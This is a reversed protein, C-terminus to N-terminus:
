QRRTSRTYPVPSAKKNTNVPLGMGLGVGTAGIVAATLRNAGCGEIGCHPAQDAFLRSIPVHNGNRVLPSAVVAAVTQPRSCLAQCSAVLAALHALPKLLGAM